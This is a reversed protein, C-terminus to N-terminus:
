PINWGGGRRRPDVAVWALVIWAGEVPARPDMDSSIHIWDVDWGNRIQKPMIEWWMHCSSGGAGGECTKFHVILSGTEQFHGMFIHRQKIYTM